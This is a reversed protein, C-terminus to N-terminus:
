SDEDEVMPVFQVAGLDDHWVRGGRKTYRRLRQMSFLSGIPAVLVGGDALQALLAPPAEEPAATVLIRDFPAQEPWGAYGDGARVHVNDYGLRALRVRAQEALETILEISFVEKALLSLIAAQYGSGTGIELVREDGKLRLAETMMAVVTPQSITQGWGIPMPQDEYALALPVMPAFRHRPVRRMAELVPASTVSGGRALGDVLRERLASAHADRTSASSEGDLDSDSDILVHTTM